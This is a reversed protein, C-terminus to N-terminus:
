HGPRKSQRHLLMGAMALLCVAGPEPVVSINDVYLDGNQYANSGQSFSDSFEIRRLDVIFPNTFDSFPVPSGGFPTVTGSITKTVVDASGDIHYWVNPSLTMFPSGGTYGASLTNGPGDIVFLFATVLGVNPNSHNGSFALYEPAGTLNGLMFDASYTVQGTQPTFSQGLMPALDVSTSDTMLLSTTGAPYVGTFPSNPTTPGSGPAGPSFGWANPFIGSYSELDGNVLLEARSPIASFLASLAFGLAVRSPTNMETRWHFTSYTRAFEGFTPLSKGSGANDHSGLARRDRASGLIGTGDARLL